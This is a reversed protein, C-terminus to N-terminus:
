GFISRVGASPAAQQPDDRGRDRRQNQEQAMALQQKQQQLETEFGRIESISLHAPHGLESTPVGQVRLTEYEHRNGQYFAVFQGAAVGTNPNAKSLSAGDIPSNPDLRNANNLEQAKLYRMASLSTRGLDAGNMDIGNDVNTKDLVARINMYENYLKQNSRGFPDDDREDNRM